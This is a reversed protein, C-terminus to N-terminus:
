KKVFFKLDMLMAMLQLLLTQYIKMLPRKTTLSSLNNSTAVVKFLQTSRLWALLLALTPMVYPRHSARVLPYPHLLALKLRTM